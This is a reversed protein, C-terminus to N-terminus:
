TGDLERLIRRAEERCIASWKALGAAARRRVHWPATEDNAVERAVISAEERLDRRLKAMAEAARWRTTFDPERML